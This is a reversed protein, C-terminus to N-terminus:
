IADAIAKHENPQRDVVADISWLRRSGGVQFALGIMLSQYSGKSHGISNFRPFMLDFTFVAVYTKGILKPLSCSITARDNIPEATRKHTSKAASGVPEDVIPGSLNVPQELRDCFLSSLRCYGIASLNTVLCGALSSAALPTWQTAQRVPCPAINGIRIPALGTGIRAFTLALTHNIIIELAGEFQEGVRVIPCHLLESNSLPLGTNACWPSDHKAAESVDTPSLNHVAWAEILLIGDL